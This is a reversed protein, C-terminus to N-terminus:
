RNASGYSLELMDICREVLCVYFLTLCIMWGKGRKGQLQCHLWNRHVFFMLLKVVCFSM